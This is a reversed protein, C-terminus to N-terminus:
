LSVASTQFLSRKAFHVTDYGLRTDVRFIM